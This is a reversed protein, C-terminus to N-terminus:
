SCSSARTGPWPSFRCRSRASRMRTSPAGLSPCPSSSCIKVSFMIPGIKKSSMWRLPFSPKPSPLKLARNSDMSSSWIRRPTRGALPPAHALEGVVQRREGLVLERLGAHEAPALKRGDQGPAVREVAERRRPALHRDLAAVEPRVLHAAVDEALHDDVAPGRAVVFPHPRAAQDAALRPRM